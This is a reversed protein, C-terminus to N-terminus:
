RRTRGGRLDATTALRWVRVACWEAQYRAAIREVMEDRDEAEDVGARGDMRVRVRPRLLWPWTRVWDVSAAVGFGDLELAQSHLSTVRM